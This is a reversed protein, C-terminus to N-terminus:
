PATAEPESPGYYDTIRKAIKRAQWESWLIPIVMAFGNKDYGISVSMLWTNGPFPSGLSADSPQYITTKHPTAKPASRRVRTM